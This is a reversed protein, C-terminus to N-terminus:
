TFVINIKLQAPSLFNIRCSASWVFDSKKQIHIEKEKVTAESDRSHETVRRM